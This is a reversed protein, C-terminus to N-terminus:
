VPGMTITDVMWANFVVYLSYVECENQMRTRDLRKVLGKAYGISDLPM